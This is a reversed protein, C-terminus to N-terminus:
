SGHHKTIGARLKTDLSETMSTVHYLDDFTTGEVEVQMIWALAPDPATPAATVSAVVGDFWAQFEAANRPLSAIKM